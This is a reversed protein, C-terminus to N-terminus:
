TERPSTIPRHEGPSYEPLSARDQQAAQYSPPMLEAESIAKLREKEKKRHRIYLPILVFITIGAFGSGIGIGVKDETSLGHSKSEAEKASCTKSGNWISVNQFIAEEITDCDLVMDSYIHIGDSAWRLNPLNVSNLCLETLFYRQCLFQLSHTVQRSINGRLELEHVRHLPLDIALPDFANVTMTMNTDIMKPMSLSVAVM